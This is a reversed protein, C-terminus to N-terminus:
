EEVVKFYEKITAIAAEAQALHIQLAYFSVHANQEKDCEAYIYDIKPEIQDSYFDSLSKLEDQNPSKQIYRLAIHHMEMGASALDFIFGSQIATSEKALTDNKIIVLLKSITTIQWEIDHLDLAQKPMLKDENSNIEGLKNREDNYLKQTAVKDKITKIQAKVKPDVTIDNDVQSILETIVDLLLREIYTIRTTFVEM